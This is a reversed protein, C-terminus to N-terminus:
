TGAQTLQPPFAAAISEQISAELWNKWGIIDEFKGTDADNELFSPSGLTATTKNLAKLELDCQNVITKYIKDLACLIQQLEVFDECATALRIVRPLYIALDFFPPLILVHNIFARFFAQRHEKWTDPPLDREYAEMDRLKIAFGARRMTLADAKRLNDALEGNSQTAAILDTSVFEASTPLDPLARWESARTRIQYDIANVLTKGTEGRLVFVKNKSNAFCIESNGLYDTQFKVNKDDADPNDGKLCTLKSDSRLCLWQWVEDTNKFNAGNEMVLIIDDVYRGYYIPVVEREIFRDFEILAMNAVVASAPLGVPLGRKLPTGLAWEQLGNIFLKNLKAQKEDLSLELVETLFRDDLIFEPDLKHYFSSIDGTLAVIKKNNKLAVRMATIGANHWDRYPKLYPQFSGLSLENMRAGTHVRRLRNGYACTTLKADFLHGVELMWLASLVHFDMSCAAMVRFEAVPRENPRLVECQYNWKDEPSSMVPGAGHQRSYKDWADFKIAKPAPFWTGVFESSRVWSTDERRINAQLKTLNNFLDDEYSAISNLSAYSSYFLDAKAKRYALGLVHLNPM